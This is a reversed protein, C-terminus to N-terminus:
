DLFDLAEAPAGPSDPADVPTARHALEGELRDVLGRLEDTTMESLPKDAQSDVAQPRATFGARDLLAKAAELRIKSNESSNRAISMCVHLGLPAGETALIDQIVLPIAARVSPSRLVESYSAPNYGVAEAALRPPTGGVVLRVFEAQKANLKLGADKTIRALAAAGPKVM